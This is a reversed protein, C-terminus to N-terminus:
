LWPNGSKLLGVPDPHPMLTDHPARQDVFFTPDNSKLNRGLPMRLLNGFRETEVKDQKPYVEISISDFYEAGWTHTRYTLGTSDKDWTNDGVDLLDVTLQAAERVEAAAAPGTFGYVHIGKNGSYTMATPLELDKSIVMALTEGLHRLAKKLHPRAPSLRNKWEERPNGSTITEDGEGEYYWGYKKLDLDFCFFKCKSEADLMYNGYTKVGALHDKVAQMTWPRLTDDADRDPMYGRATQVAKADGRQIFKQALLKALEDSM